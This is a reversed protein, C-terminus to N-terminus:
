RTLTENLFPILMGVRNRERRSFHSHLPFRLPIPWGAAAPHLRNLSSLPGPIQMLCWRGPALRTAFTTTSGPSWFLSGEGGTISPSLSGIHRPRTASSTPYRGCTGHRPPMSAPMASTPWYREQCGCVLYCRRGALGAAMPRSLCSLHQPNLMQSSAM